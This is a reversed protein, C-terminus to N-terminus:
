KRKTRDVWAQLFETFEPGALLLSQTWTEMELGTTQDVSATRNLIQKTMALGRASRDKLEATLQALCSELDEPSVVRHALNLALAREAAVPNGLLLIETAASLGIQRQLLWATGMDGGALGIKTFVFSLSARSSLVRFDAALAIAAGAGAAVGDIAAVVIAPMERLNRTVEATIRMFDHQARVGRNLLAAATLDLDGGACFAGAAGKFQLVSIDDRLRLRSTLDRLGLYDEPTLANRREPRGLTITAVGDAETYHFHGALDSYM